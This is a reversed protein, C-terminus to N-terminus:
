HQNNKFKYIYTTDSKTSGDPAVVTTIELEIQPQEDTKIKSQSITRIAIVAWLITIAVLIIEGILAEIDPDKSVLETGITVALLLAIAITAIAMIYYGCM